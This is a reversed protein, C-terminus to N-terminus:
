KQPKPYRKSLETYFQQIQSRKGKLEEARKAAAETQFTKPNSAALKEYLELARDLTGRTEDANDAKPVGALAEEIKAAGMAAEQGLVPLDTSERALQEYLDRSRELQDVATAREDSRESYLNQLGKDLLERAMQFRAARAPVTGREETAIQELRELDNGAADWRV